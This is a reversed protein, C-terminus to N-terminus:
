NRKILGMLLTVVFIALFIFFLVKAISAAGAAIGGFGFIAAIIAIVFFVAAYHLMTTSRPTAPSVHVRHADVAICREVARWGDVWSCAAHGRRTPCCPPAAAGGGCCGAHSWGRPRRRLGRAAALAGGAPRASLWGAGGRAAAAWPLAALGHGGTTAGWAAEIWHVSRRQALAQWRAAVNRRQLEAALQLAERRHALLAADAM